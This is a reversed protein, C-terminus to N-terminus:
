LVENSCYEINYVIKQCMAGGMKQSIYHFRIKAYSMNPHKLGATKWTRMYISVTM